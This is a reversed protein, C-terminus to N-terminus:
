TYLIERFIDSTNANFTADSSFFHAEDFVVVAINPIRGVWNPGRRLGHVGHYTTIFVNGCQVIDSLAEGSWQLSGAQTMNYKQQLELASRNSLLLVNKGFQGVRNALDRMVFTSKGSGTPANILVPGLRGPNSYDWRSLEDRLEESVWRGKLEITEYSLVQRAGIAVLIPDAQNPVSM